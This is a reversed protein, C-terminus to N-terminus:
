AYPLLAVTLLTNEPRSAASVDYYRGARVIRIFSSAVSAAFPFQILRM